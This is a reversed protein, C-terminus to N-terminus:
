KGCYSHVTDSIEITGADVIPLAHFLFRPPTTVVAAVCLRFLSV